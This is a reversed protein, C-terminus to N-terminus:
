EEYRSAEPIARGSVTDKQRIVDFAKDALHYYYYTEDPSKHGLYRSLYPLMKDTDVGRLMWDNMREVVFAHRLCHPTPHKGVTKSVPLKDWYRKFYSEVGGSFVPKDPHFGPFIWPTDPYRSQIYDAYNRMVPIGDPPLYVLRSKHGKSELITLIGREMDVHERKLLRGESLRLGCCFYLAFLIKCEKDMRRQIANHSTPEEMKSLLARVDEKSPVYLVPRYAKCSFHTPVYAEQGLSLIYVSLSKVISIRSNHYADGEGPRSASWEAVMDYTITTEQPFRTACFTDFRKLLLEGSHYSFGDARKQEVLGQMYPALKSEFMGNM